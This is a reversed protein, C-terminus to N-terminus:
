LKQLVYTYTICSCALFPKMFMFNLDSIHEECILAVYM